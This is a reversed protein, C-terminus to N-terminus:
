EPRADRLSLAEERLEDATIELGVGHRKLVGDTAYADLGLARELQGHTIRDQRFLEVLLAERAEGNLDVGEARAQQGIELPIEFSINM